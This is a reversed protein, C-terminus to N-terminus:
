WQPRPDQLILWGQSDHPLKCPVLPCDGLRHKLSCRWRACKANRETCSRCRVNSDCPLSNAYCESCAIANKPLKGNPNPAVLHAAGRLLEGDNAARFLREQSVKLHQETLKLQSRLRDCQITKERLKEKVDDVDGQNIKGKLMEVEDELDSAKLQEELHRQRLDIVTRERKALKEALNEAQTVYEGANIQAVLTADRQLAVHKIQEELKKTAGRSRKLECDAASLKKALEDTYLQLKKIDVEQSTLSRGMSAKQDRNVENQYRLKGIQVALENEDVRPSDKERQLRALKVELARNQATLMQLDAGMSDWVHKTLRVVPDQTPQDASQIPHLFGVSYPPYRPGVQALPRLDPTPPSKQYPLSPIQPNTQRHVEDNVHDQSTREKELNLHYLEQKRHESVPRTSDLTSALEQEHLFAAVSDPALFPTVLPSLSSQGTTAASTSQM